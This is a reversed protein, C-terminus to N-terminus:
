DSDDDGFTRPGIVERLAAVLGERSGMELMSTRAPKESTSAPLNPTESARKNGTIVENLSANRTEDNQSIIAAANAEGKKEAIKSLLADLYDADSTYKPNDPNLEAKEAPSLGQLLNAYRPVIGQFLQTYYETSVQEKMSRKENELKAQQRVVHAYQAPDKDYLEELEQQFKRADEGARTRELASTVMRKVENIDYLPSQPQEDEEEEEEADEEDEPDGVDENADPTPVPTNKLEDPTLEDPAIVEEDPTNNDMM